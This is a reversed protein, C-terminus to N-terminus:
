EDLVTSVFSFCFLTVPNGRPHFYISRFEWTTSFIAAREGYTRAKTGGVEWSFIGPAAV